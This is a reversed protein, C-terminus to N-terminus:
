SISNLPQLSNLASSQSQQLCLLFLRLSSASVGQGQLLVGPKGEVRM